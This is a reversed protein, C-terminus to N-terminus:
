SSRRRTGSSVIRPEEEGKGEWLDEDVGTGEVEVVEREIEGFEDSGGQGLPGRGERSSWLGYPM